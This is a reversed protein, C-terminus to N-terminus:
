SEDGLQSDRFNDMEDAIETLINGIGYNVDQQSISPEGNQYKMLEGLARVKCSMLWLSSIEVIRRNKSGDRKSRVREALKTKAM